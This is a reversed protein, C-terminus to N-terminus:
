CAQLSKAFTTPTKLINVSSNSGAVWLVFKVLHAFSEIILESLLEDRHWTAGQNYLNVVVTIM